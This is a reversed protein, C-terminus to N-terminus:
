GCIEYKFYKSTRPVQEQYFNTLPVLVNIKDMMFSDCSKRGSNLPSAPYPMPKEEGGIYTLDVDDV